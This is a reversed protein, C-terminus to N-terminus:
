AFVVCFMRVITANEDIGKWMYLVTYMFPLYFLRAAQAAAPNAM